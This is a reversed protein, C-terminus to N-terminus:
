RQDCSRPVTPLPRDLAEYLPSGLSGSPYGIGLVQSLTPAIDMTTVRRHFCGGQIGPGWLLLPVHTDYAWPANHNTSTTSTTWAWGPDQIILVDGSRRPHFGNVVRSVWEWPPLRGELIQGRTFATHVGPFGAAAAAALREVHGPSIGKAAITEQNLYLYPGVSRGLTAPELWMGEGLTATLQSQVFHALTGPNVRGAPARYVAKMEEPFPLVGHDATVVVLVQELGGPITAALFGLFDALLRDTRVTIDLTEPSNPGYTHGIYDNTSLNVALLDPWEDQGLRESVVARKMATFVLDNGFGSESLSSFFEQVPRGGGALPHAFPLDGGPDHGPASRSARYAGAPMSPEWTRGLYRRPLNEANLRSVWEPLEGGPFYFSSSVWNGTTDDLWIVTNAAHGAMLIAVRDKFAIGVVRSRGATAMKMEDGLTTVLLSRPSGPTDGGGVPRVEPDYVCYQVEGRERDLWSNAVVGHLVPASGTLLTAHGPGTATPVHAFHADRYHAGGQMLFALGGPREVTGAPLYHEVFRTLYDARCQDISLFVVLRPPAAAQVVASIALLAAMMGVAVTRRMM